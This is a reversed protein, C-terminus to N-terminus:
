ITLESLAVARHEAASKYAADVLAMTKLNDRGSIAPPANTEIAILLQGMTGAFADPFWSGPWTPKSFDADGKKAYRISSPSTYPDKCWGIDGEVLGDTGEIRYT